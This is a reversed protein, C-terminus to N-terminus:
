VPSHCTSEAFNSCFICFERVPLSYTVSIIFACLCAWWIARREGPALTRLFVGDFPLIPLVFPVLAIALLDALIEFGEAIIVSIVAWSLTPRIVFGLEGM